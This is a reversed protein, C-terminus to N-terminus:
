ELPGVTRTKSDHRFTSHSIHIWPQRRRAPNDASRFRQLRVVRGFRAGILQDLLLLRSLLAATRRRPDLRLLKSSVLRRRGPALRPVLVVLVIMGVVVGVLRRWRGIRHANRVESRSVTTKFTHDDALARPFRYRNRVNRLM